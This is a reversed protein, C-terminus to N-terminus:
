KATEADTGGDLAMEKGIGVVEGCLEDAQVACSVYVHDFPFAANAAPTRIM